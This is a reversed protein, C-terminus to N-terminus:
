KCTKEGLSFATFGLSDASFGCTEQCNGHCQPAEWHREQGPGPMGDGPDRPSKSNLLFYCSVCCTSSVLSFSWPMWSFQLLHSPCSISPTYTFSYTSRSKSSQVALRHNTWPCIQCCNAIRGTGEHICIGLNCPARAIDGRLCKLGVLAGFLRENTPQSPSHKGLKALIICIPKLNNSHKQGSFSVGRVSEIKEGGGAEWWHLHCHQHDGAPRLCGCSCSNCPAGLIPVNSVQKKSKQLEKEAEAEPDEEQHITEYKSLSEVWVPFGSTWM